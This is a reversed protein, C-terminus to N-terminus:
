VCSHNFVILSFDTVCNSSLSPSTLLLSQIGKFHIYNLITNSHDIHPIPLPHCDTRGRRGYLNGQQHIRGAPVSRTGQPRHLHGTLRPPCRCFSRNCIFSYCVLLVERLCCSTSKDKSPSVTLARYRYFLTEKQIRESHM